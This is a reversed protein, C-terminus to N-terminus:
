DYTVFEVEEFSLVDERRARDVGALVPIVTVRFRPESLATLAETVVVPKTARRLPHPLRLDDVDDPNAPVECHGEDGACGGHGFVVFYGAFGHEPEMATYEDAATNNIFVRAQFSPGSHDIGHFILDARSFAAEGEGSPLELQPSVYRDM